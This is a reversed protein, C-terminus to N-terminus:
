LEAVRCCVLKGFGHDISSKAVALVLYVKVLVIM